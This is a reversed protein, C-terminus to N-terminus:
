LHIDLFPLKTALLKKAVVRAKDLKSRYNECMLDLNDALKSVRKLETRLKVVELRLEAETMKFVSRAM